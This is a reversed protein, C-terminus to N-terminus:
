AATASAPSSSRGSVMMDRETTILIRRDGQVYIDRVKGESRPGLGPVDARLLAHPIAATIEDNSIM